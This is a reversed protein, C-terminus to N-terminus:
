PVEPAGACCRFGDDGAVPALKRHGHRAQCGQGYVGVWLTGGLVWRMSDDPGSEVWESVNGEQDFTGWPSRCASEGDSPVTKHYQGELEEDAACLGPVRTEGYPQNWGLGGGCAKTWEDESCLRRGQSECAVRAQIWTVDALPKQGEGPFEFRDICYAGTSWEGPPRPDRPIDPQYSPLHIQEATAGGLFAGAPVWVM